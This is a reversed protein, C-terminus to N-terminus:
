AGCRRRGRGEAVRAVPWLFREREWLHQLKCRVRVEPDVVFRSVQRALREAFAHVERSEEVVVADRAQAGEVSAVARLSEDSAARGGAPKISTGHRARASRERNGGRACQRRGHAAVTEQLAEPNRWLKAM